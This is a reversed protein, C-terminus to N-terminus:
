KKVIRINHVENGVSLRLIYIGSELNNSITLNQEGANVNVLELNGISQGLMNVIEYSVEGPINMFFNVNIENDFPNPYVSPNIIANNVIGTYNDCFVINSFAEYYYNGDGPSCGDIRRVKIRYYSGDENPNM